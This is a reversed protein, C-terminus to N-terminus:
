HVERETRQVSELTNKIDEVSEHMKTSLRRSTMRHSKKVLVYFHEFAGARLSSFSGFRGSSDELHDLLRFKITLLGSFFHPSFTKEAASKFKWIKSRM